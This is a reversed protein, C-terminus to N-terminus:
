ADSSSWSIAAATLPNRPCPSPRGRRWGAPFASARPCSASLRSRRPTSRSRAASSLRIPASGAVGCATPWCSSEQQGLAPQVGLVRFFGDSVRAGFIRESEGRETVTINRNAMGALDAFVDNQTRWDTFDPLSATEHGIRTNDGWVYYLRDPRSFPLPRLLVAHVASFIATNGGVGLALVVIATVAFTKERRMMRLAYACDQRLMTLHERPATRLLDRLTDLWLQAMGRLGESRRERTQDRFVREMEQGYDSRFDRPLLRLLAGFIRESVRRRPQNSEPM